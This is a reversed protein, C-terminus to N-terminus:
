SHRGSRLPRLITTKGLSQYGLTALAVAIPCELGPHHAFGTTLPFEGVAVGPAAGLNAADRSQVTWGAAELRQDIDRRAKEEPKM